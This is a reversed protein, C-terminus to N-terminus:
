VRKRYRWAFALGALLVVASAALLIGNELGQDSQLMGQEGPMGEEMAWQGPRTMGDTQTSNDGSESALTGDQTPMTQSADPQTQPMGEELQGGAQQTQPPQQSLQTQAGEQSQAPQSQTEQEGSPSGLDEREMPGGMGGGMSNNMTGMDSISLESADVLASSDEAQGDLTSPITGDLQGRISEARLLCFQELTEIGTEFEEYTCFKTPDKEVYPAILAKTQAMMQAFYGSDFYSSIFEEFYQHYLQTYEESAFIWALMPRSDVTGGSVPTDIPYNVMFTADQGGQFGGFALNYDWPIMSLQGDEEYLYYNHIMSGTYSDFNCVFNHVVFYRIVEDVDVVSEINEGENLQKLSDILRDKDTDTIDTKANDFINSYSDYDDDTYILSVDDSGMMGGGRGGNEGFGEPMSETREGFAGEEPLEPMAGGDMGPPSMGGPRQGKMAQRDINTDQSAEDGRGDIWDEMDFAGGNGRGGGMSMSDPKYLEGYDSGYNRELFSEEVGEVALYLGWDEGNVTIYVYSCLPADVGFYGMMQYSLYDKMYTNDQIINNLSLKDLGHYSITSDYHDFEVKFSYRDNGYSAVQTLSTNGKARIAVNHYSENDIVLDCVVYEEDTCGELFGEWDDMVIDITHVRSTDFLRSEYGQVTSAAQIGLSSANLFVVTLVLALALALCCIKDIHKHTSM